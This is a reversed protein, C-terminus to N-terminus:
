PSHRQNAVEIRRVLDVISQCVLPLHHLGEPYKMLFGDINGAVRAAHTFQRELRDPALIDANSKNKLLAQFLARAPFPGCASQRSTRENKLRPLVFLHKLPLGKRQM